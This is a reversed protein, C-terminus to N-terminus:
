ESAYRTVNSKNLDRHSSSRPVIRTGDVVYEYAFTRNGEHFSLRVQRKSADLSTVAVRGRSDGTRGASLQREIAAPDDPPSCVSGAAIAREADKLPLARANSPAGDHFDFVVVEFGDAYAMSAPVTASTGARDCAAGILAILLSAMWRKLSVPM